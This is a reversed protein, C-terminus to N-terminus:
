KSDAGLIEELSTNLQPILGATLVAKQQELLDEIEDDAQLAYKLRVLTRTIKANRRMTRSTTDAM